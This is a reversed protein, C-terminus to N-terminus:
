RIVTLRFNLSGLTIGVAVATTFFMELTDASSVRVNPPVYGSPPASVLEIHVQDTTLLGTISQTVATGTLATIAGPTNTFNVTVLNTRAASGTILATNSGIAGTAGTAGTAGSPGTSGTIGTPGTAGTAGTPGGSPGTAGAPGTAGSPGTAGAPGTPGTAGAPSPIVVTGSEILYAAAGSM